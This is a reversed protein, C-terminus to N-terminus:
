RCRRVPTAGHRRIGWVISRDVVRLRRLHRDNTATLLISLGSAFGARTLCLEERVVDDGLFEPSTCNTSTEALVPWPISLSRSDIWSCRFHELELGTFAGGPHTISDRRVLSAGTAVAAPSIPRQPFRRPARPRQRPRTRAIFSSFAFAHVFGARWRDLDLSELVHGARAVVHDDEIVLALRALHAREGPCTGRRSAPSAAATLSSFTNRGAPSAALGASMMLGVAAGRPSACASVLSEVSSTLTFMTWVPTAADRTSM